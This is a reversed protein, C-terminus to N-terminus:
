VWLRRAEAERAKPHCAGEKKAKGSVCGPLVLSFGKQECAFPRNSSRQKEDVSLPSPDDGWLGSKEGRNLYFVSEAQLMTVPVWCGESSAMTGRGVCLRPASLRSRDLGSLCSSGLMTQFSSALSLPGIDGSAMRTQAHAWPWSCCSSLIAPIVINVEWKLCFNKNKSTLRNGPSWWYSFLTSHQRKDVSSGM